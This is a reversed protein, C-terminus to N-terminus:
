LILQLEQLLGCLNGNNEFKFIDITMACSHVLFTGNKWSTRSWFHYHKLSRALM